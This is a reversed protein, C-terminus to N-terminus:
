EGDRPDGRSAKEELGSTGFRRVLEAEVDQFRVECATLMVMLHYTLDAAEHVVAKQRDDEMLRAADALEAAEERIKEGIRGVGAGLLQATYSESSRSTKRSAIVAELRRLVRDQNDM